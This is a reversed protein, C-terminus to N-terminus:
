ASSGPSAAATAAPDPTGVFDVKTSALDGRTGIPGLYKPEGSQPEFIRKLRKSFCRESCALEYFGIDDLASRRRSVAEKILFRGYNDDEPFNYGAVIVEDTHELADMFEMWQRILVCYSSHPHRGQLEAILESKVPVAGVVFPQIFEPDASVQTAAMPDTAPKRGEEMDVHQRSPYYRWSVSGHPKILTVAERANQTPAQILPIGLHEALTEALVDWNFSVLVDGPQLSSIIACLTFEVTNALARRIETRLSEGYVDLIAAHLQLNAQYGYPQGRQIEPFKSFYDLRTWARALDWADISAVPVDVVESTPYDPHLAQREKRLLDDVLVALVPYRSRWSPVRQRLARGFGGTTPALECTGATAGSGLIVTKM